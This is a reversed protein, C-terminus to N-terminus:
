VIKFIKNLRTIKFMSNVHKTLSSVKLEGHHHKLERLGFILAGLGSSDMFDVNKLDVIVDCFDEEGYDALIKRFEEANGVDIRKEQVVIRTTGDSKEIKFDM